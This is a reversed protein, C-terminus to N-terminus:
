ETVTNQIYTVDEAANISYVPLYASSVMLSLM